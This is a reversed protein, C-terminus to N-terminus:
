VARVIRHAHGLGGVLPRGGRRIRRLRIRRLVVRRLVVRGLAIRRLVIRGLAVRRLVVRWLLVLLM